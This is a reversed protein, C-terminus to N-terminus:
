PQAESTEGAGPLMPAALITKFNFYNVMGPRAGQPKKVHRVLTYDVPVRGGAAGASYHAAIGAARGLIDDPVPRGATEVVVHAGPMNRAHLWLDNKQAHRGTLADNEVNNRGCLAVFGDGLDFRRPAFASPKRKGGTPKKDRVYGGAILEQRLAEVDSLSECASLAYLASDLYAIEGDGREIQEALAAEAHKQRQYKKYLKQANAQPSLRSDLRIVVQPAGESFWDTVRVEAAGGPITHLNATILDADAKTAERGQAALLEQRQAAVKRILRARATEAAKKAASSASQLSFAATKERYFGDLLASFDPFRVSAGDPYQTIPLAAVALPAGARTILFPAPELARFRLLTDALADADGGSLHVAERLMLPPLGAIAGALADAGGRCLARLTDASLDWLAPREQAPPPLYRLGPLVPRPSREAGVAKLCALIIGSEDTLILNTMRGTMECILRRTHLDGLADTAAFAFVLAREHGPQDVSLVRGGGLHKRLLVCFMPPQDPNEPRTETLHARADSGAAVLLRVAGMAGRLHLIVRDRGPLHIKDVRAGTLAESLERALGATVFSDLPM